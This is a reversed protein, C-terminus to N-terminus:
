LRNIIDEETYIIFGNEKLLKACVGDGDILKGDFSGDYIKDKGCSPSKSKLVCYDVNNLKAIDLAINAGDQYNSTVDVGEYNFVKDGSVESKVRPTPLGGLQEPCVPILVNDKSLKRIKKYLVSKGDYRTKYGLLCASILIKAM